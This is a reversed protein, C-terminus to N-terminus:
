KASVASSTQHQQPIVTTKNEKADPQNQPNPPDPVTILAAPVGGVCTYIGYGEPIGQINGIGNKITERAKDLSTAVIVVEGAQNQRKGSCTVVSIGPVPYATTLYTFIIGQPTEEPRANAQPSIVKTKSFAKIGNKKVAIASIKGPAIDILVAGIDSPNNNTTTKTAENNNGGRNAYTSTASGAQGPNAGSSASLNRTVAQMKASAAEDDSRYQLYLILTVLLVLLTIVIVATITQQRDSTQGLQEHVRKYYASLSFGTKAEDDASSSGRKKKPAYSPTRSASYPWINDNQNYGSGLNPQYNQDRTRSHRLEDNSM